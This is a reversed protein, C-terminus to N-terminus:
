TKPCAKKIKNNSGNLLNLNSYCSFSHKDGDYEYLDHKVQTIKVSDLGAKYQRLPVKRASKSILNLEYIFGDQECAFFRRSFPLFNDIIEKPFIVKNLYIRPLPVM